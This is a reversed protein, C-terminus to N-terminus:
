YDREEDPCYQFFGHHETAFRGIEKRPVAYRDADPFELPIGSVFHGVISKLPEDSTKRAKDSLVYIISRDEFERGATCPYVYGIIKM